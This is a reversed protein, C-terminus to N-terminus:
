TFRRPDLLKAGPVPDGEAVISAIVRGAEFAFPLGGGSFGSIVLEGTRGPLPGVLPLYDATWGFIGSWREEVALPAASPFAREFWGQLDGQLGPDLDPKMKWYSRDWADHRWGGLAIRGDPVSRWVNLKWHTSCGGPFSLGGSDAILAQGRIPVIEDGLYSSFRRSDVHTAYVVMEARVEGRDTDCVLGGRERRVETVEVGESIGAGEAEAARALAVATPGPSLCGGGDVFYGGSFGRGGVKGRADEATLWSVPLGARELAAHARQVRVLTHPEALVFGGTLDLAVRESEGRERLLTGLSAVSRLAFEWIARAEDAGRFHVTEDFPQRLPPALVGVAASTTGGGVVGRELLAVDVGAAALHYAASTGSIGGGVVVVDVSSAM